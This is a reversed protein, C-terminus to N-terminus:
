TGKGKKSTSFADSPIRKSTLEQELKKSEGRPRGQTSYKQHVGACKVYEAVRSNSRGGERGLGVKTGLPGFRDVSSKKTTPVSQIRSSPAINRYLEGLGGGGKKSKEKKWL